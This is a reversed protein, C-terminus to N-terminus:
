RRTSLVDVRLVLAHQSVLSVVPGSVFADFLLLFQQTNEVLTDPVDPLLRRCVCACPGEPARERQGHLNTNLQRATVVQRQLFASKSQFFQVRKWFEGEYLEIRLSSLGCAFVVWFQVGPRVESVSAKTGESHLRILLLALVGCSCHCTVRM